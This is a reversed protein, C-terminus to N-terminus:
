SYTQPVLGTLVAEFELRVRYCLYPQSATDVSAYLLTHIALTSPSAGIAAKYLVDVTYREKSIGLVEWMNYTVDHYGRNSYNVMMSNAMPFEIAPFATTISAGSGALRPFCSCFLTGESSYRGVLEYRVRCRMVKYDSYLAGFQDYM